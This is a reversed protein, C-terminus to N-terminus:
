GARPCGDASGAANPCNDVQDRVGDGDRDSVNPLSPGTGPKRRKLFEELDRRIGPDRILGARLLFELNAAAKDPSETNLMELIRAQESKLTELNTQSNANTYVVFANGLAAVAAALIAVVLPNKWRSAAHEARALALQADKSEQERESVAIERERFACEAEWRMRDLSTDLQPPDPETGSM